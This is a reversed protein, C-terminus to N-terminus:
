SQDDSGGEEEDPNGYASEIEANCEECYQTPGEYYIDYDVPVDRDDVFNDVEFGLAELLAVRRSEYLANTACDPCIVCGHGDRYEIPYGGPWAFADLRPWKHWPWISGFRDCFDNSEQWEHVQDLWQRVLQNAKM